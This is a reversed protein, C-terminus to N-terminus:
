LSADAVETSQLLQADYNHTSTQVVYMGIVVSNIWTM